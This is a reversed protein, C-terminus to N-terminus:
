APERWHCRFLDTIEQVQRVRSPILDLKRKALMKLGVDLDKLWRGTQRKYGLMIGLKHARGYKELSRLVEAHFDFINPKGLTVGEEVAMLRLTDMVAALDIGMPCQSSCTHCGVCVWITKCTLVEQRLGFQVLRLLQNPSYDMAEVFPCGNGCSRCHYCSNFDAGSRERVEAALSPKVKAAETAEPYWAEPRLPRVQSM